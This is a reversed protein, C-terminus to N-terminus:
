EHSLKVNCSNSHQYNGLNLETGGLYLLYEVNSPDIELARLIFGKAETFENKYIHWDALAYLVTPDNPSDELARHLLQLAKPGNDYIGRGARRWFDRLDVGEEEYM